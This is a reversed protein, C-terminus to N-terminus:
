CGTTTAGAFAVTAAPEGAADAVKVAASAEAAAASM